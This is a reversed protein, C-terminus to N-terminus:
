RSTTVIPEGGLEYEIVTEADARITVSVERPADDGTMRCAIRYTGTRMTVGEFPPQHAFPRGNVLVEGVGGLFFVSLTGTEVRPPAAREPEPKKAIAVATSEPRSASKQTPSKRTSDATTSARTNSKEVPKPAPARDKPRADEVRGATEIRGAIASSTDLPPAGRLVVSPEFAPPDLFSSVSPLTDRPAMAATSTGGRDRGFWIAAGAAVVLVAASGFAWRPVARRPKPTVGRAATASTTRARESSAGTRADITVTRGPGGHEARIREVHKRARENGPDLFLIRRFELEADELHHRGKQLFFSGRSLCHAVTKENFSADYADPDKVYSALRRRDRTVKNKEMATEIDAILETVRSYRDREDKRLMRVVIREFEGDILPNVHTVAPPDYTQIKELVDSYSKGEFPKRRSLLEYAVVGLSFIDSAPGVPRGAAQEPSM